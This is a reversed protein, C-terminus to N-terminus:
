LHYAKESVEVPSWGTNLIRIPNPDLCALIAGGGFFLFFSYIEHNFLQRNLQLSRRSGSPGRYPDLVYM